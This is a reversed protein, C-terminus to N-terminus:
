CSGSKKSWDAFSINEREEFVGFKRYDNSFFDRRSCQSEEILFDLVKNNSHALILDNIKM